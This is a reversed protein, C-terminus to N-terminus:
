LAHIILLKRITYTMQSVIETLTLDIYSSGENFQDDEDQVSEVSQQEDDQSEEEIDLPDLTPDIVDLEQKKAPSPAKGPSVSPADHYTEELPDLTPDYNINM